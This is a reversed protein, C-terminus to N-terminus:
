ETKKGSEKDDESEKYPKGQKVAHYLMKTTAYDTDGQKLKQIYLYKDEPITIILKTLKM